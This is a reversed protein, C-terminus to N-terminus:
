ILKKVLEKIGIGLDRDISIEIVDGSKDISEPDYEIYINKDDFALEEPETINNYVTILNTKQEDRMDDSSVEDRFENNKSSTEYSNCGVIHKLCNMYRKERVGDHGESGAVVVIKDCLNLLYKAENGLSEGMDFLIYDFVDSNIIEELLMTIRDTDLECLENLGQTPVFAKVGFKDNTMFASADPTNGESKFLYYLYRGMDLSDDRKEMYSLTSEIQEFSLYLVAKSYYRRLAQSAGLAVTTKGVGGKAGCFAILKIDEISPVFRKKGFIMSYYLLLDNTLEQVSGFKYLVFKMKDMDKIGDAYTESLLVVRKDKVLKEDNFDLLLLDFTNQSEAEDKKLLIELENKDKCVKFILKTNFLSIAESLAIDYDNDKTYIIIKIIEM